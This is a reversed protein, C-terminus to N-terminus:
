DPLVANGSPERCPRMNEALFKAAKKAIKNKISQCAARCTKIRIRNVVNVFIDIKISLVHAREESRKRLNQTRRGSGPTASPAM